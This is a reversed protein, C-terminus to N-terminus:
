SREYKKKLRNLEKLEREKMELAQQKKARKKEENARKAIDVRDRVEEETEWRYADVYFERPGEGNDSYPRRLTINFHQPYKNRLNQLLAIAKEIPGELEGIEISENLTDRLKLPKM